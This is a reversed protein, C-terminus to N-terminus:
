RNVTIEKLVSAQFYTKFQDSLARVKATNDRLYNCLYIDLTLQNFEPWTHICIHSEMLCIAATFGAGTFVHSSVGVVTLQYQEIAGYAMALFADIDTLLKDDEVQLTLLKHTGPNYQTNM